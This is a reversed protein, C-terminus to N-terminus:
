PGIMTIKNEFPLGVFLHGTPSLWPYQSLVGGYLAQGSVSGLVSNQADIIGIVGGTKGLTVAGADAIGRNDWFPSYVSYYGNQLPEVAAYAATGSDGVLDGSTSGVLSNGRDVIGTTPRRGDFWTVAGVGDTNVGRSGWYPSAIVLNYDLLVAAFGGNSSAMPSTNRAGLSVRDGSAAGILSNAGTVDGTTGSRGEGWTVAGFGDEDTGYSQWYPSSVAYNGSLLAIVGGSGVRDGKYIGKLSNSPSVVGSTPGSGQAWTAAGVDPDRNWDWLSSAIVYDGNYLATVGNSGVQDSASSGTMSNSSDVWAATVTTGDGWTVAGVDKTIVFGNNSDDWDPSSVVYNGNRLAVVGGSGVHDRGVKGVLSNSDWVPGHSNGGGGDGWTVAGREKYWFPSAFAYNGNNLVAIAGSGVRDNRNTGVFSNSASINGVIGGTGKGWTVAGVDTAGTSPDDWSSTTVVYHGNTLIAIRSGVLDNATSGILSNNSTVSGTTTGNVGDSWTAAGVNPIGGRLRLEPSGVVYNSNTLGIVRLGVRDGSQSGVLSNQPSVRGVTGGLGNGWTAAGALTVGRNAWFPSMVVYNGNRLTRVFGGGVYDNSQSGVLSNGASVVGVTSGNKDCWTVAGMQNRSTSDTWNPSVVVYNRNFLLMIGYDSVRSGPIRGTVSNQRTVDSWFGARNEMWTAAGAANAWEPSSVVINDFGIEYLGGSGVMDGARSGTLRSIVQHTRGDYLFVAGTGLDYGPDAVFYNGNTLVVVQTGFAVSGRPGPVDQQNWQANIAVAAFSVLILSIFSRFIRVDFAGGDFQIYQDESAIRSLTLM